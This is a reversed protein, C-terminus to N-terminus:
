KTNIETEDKWPDPLKNKNKTLHDINGESKEEDLVSDTSVEVMSNIAVEGTTLGLFVDELSARTQRLEYLGLGATVITNSIEKGPEIKTM